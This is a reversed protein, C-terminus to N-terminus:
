RGFLGGLGRQKAQEIRQRVADQPPQPQPQPQPQAPPPTAPGSPPAGNGPPAGSGGAPQGGKLLNGLMGGGAGSLLEKGRGRAIAALLVAATQVPNALSIQPSSLTGGINIAVPINADPVFKGGTAASITQPPLDLNGTLALSKDLGISGSLSLGGDDTHMTIPSTTHLRGNEIRFQAALDRMALQKPALNQGARKGLQEVLPGVVQGSLSASDLRADTFGLGLLGSVKPAM